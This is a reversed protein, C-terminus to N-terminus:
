GKRAISFSGHLLVARAAALLWLACLILYARQALDFAGFASRVLVGVTALANVLLQLAVDDTLRTAMIGSGIVAAVLIGTGLAEAGCRRTIGASHTSSVHTGAARNRM